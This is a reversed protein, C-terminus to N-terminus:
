RHTEQVPFYGYRAKFKVSLQLREIALLNLDFNSKQRAHRDRCENGNRTLLAATLYPAAWSCSCDHPVHLRFLSMAAARGLHRSESAQVKLFLESISKLRLWDRVSFDCSM